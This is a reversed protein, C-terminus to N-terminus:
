EEKPRTKKIRKIDASMVSQLYFPHSRPDILMLCIYNLQEDTFYESSFLKKIEQLSYSM